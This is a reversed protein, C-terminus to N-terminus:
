CRKPYLIKHVMDQFILGRMIAVVSLKRLINEAKTAKVQVNKGRQSKGSLNVYIQQACHLSLILSFSMHSKQKCFSKIKKNSIM